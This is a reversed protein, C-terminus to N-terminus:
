EGSFNLMATQHANLFHATLLFEENGYQNNPVHSLPSAGAGYSMAVSTDDVFFMGAQIVADDPASYTLYDFSLTAPGDEDPILTLNVVHTGAPLVPSQYIMVHRKPASGSPNQRTTINAPDDIYIIATTDVGKPNYNGSHIWVWVQSHSHEFTYEYGVTHHLWDGSAIIVFLSILSICKCM